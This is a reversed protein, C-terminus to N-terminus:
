CKALTLKVVVTMRGERNRGLIITHNIVDYFQDGYHNDANGMGLIELLGGM